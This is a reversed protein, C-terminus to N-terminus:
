SGARGPVLRAAWEGARDLEGDLLPGATATVYFSQPATAPVQGARRLRKMVGKAASGPLRPRNIKTDFAAVRVGRPLRVEDLWERVGRGRSVPERGHERAQEAADRRTSERSLGFAHTPAGVVLLDTADDVVGPASGVERVEVEAHPALAAGIGRAVAETNGFASEFVVLARM